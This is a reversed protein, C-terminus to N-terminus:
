ILLKKFEDESIIKIGLSKANKIKTSTRNPDNCILYTLDKTISNKFEYGNDIGIQKFENRTMSVKGTVCFSGRIECTTTNEKKHSVFPKLMKNLRKVTHLYNDSGCFNGKLTIHNDEIIIRGCWYKDHNDDEWEGEGNLKIDNPICVFEIIWALWDIFYYNHNLEWVFPLNTLTNNKENYVWPCWEAMINKNNFKEQYWEKGCEFNKNMERFIEILKEPLKKDFKFKGYMNFDYGM